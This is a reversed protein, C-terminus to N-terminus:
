QLSLSAAAYFRGIEVELKAVLDKVRFLECDDPIQQLDHAISSIKNAMVNAAAGKIKHAHEVIASLKGEAVSIKLASLEQAVDERFIDLIRKVVARDSAFRLMLGEFDFVESDHSTAQVLKPAMETKGTKEDVRNLWKELIRALDAPMVPKTLYDNMGAELCQERYGAFAHATMAVIILDKPIGTAKGSRINATAAFGDMIPMQVDMLVLDYPLRELARLAEVGNAVADARYGMKELIALAVQQNTFNDEALLIRYKKREDNLSHRTIIQADEETKGPNKQRGLVTVLCDYLDSQRVPKTLYASFGSEAFRRADGRSSMSTMMILPTKGTLPDEKIMRALEEGSLVPMHFDTIVINFPDNALASKKLISFGLIATQVTEHRVGWCSLQESVVRLNTRNDDVILVYADSISGRPLRALSNAQAQRTFPVKFWFVAGQGEQSRFGIEGAMLKVLRQSIALGLGSGGYNRSVSADLQGFATFLLEHKEQPIGIGSDQIEFLLELKEENEAVSTVNISVEGQPTFKVANGALNLLVQRLRGPDGRVMTNVQPDIRCVFELKKEHARLAIIEAVDEVTTRLDFDLIELDLKEAEIKSFDLIDNIIALLNDSSSKIIGAYRKQNDDLVTDLLINTMGTIGNMPTRIEHSMAALFNSKARNALEAADKASKLEATREEVKRELEYHMGILRDDRLQIEALMKNFADVLHGIEDEGSKDVRITYNKEVSVKEAALELDKIPKIVAKRLNLGALLAVIFSLFAIVTALGLKRAMMLWTQSIDAQIVIRGIAEKELVISAVVEVNTPLIIELLNKLVSVANKRSDIGPSYSAFLSGDAGYVKALFVEPTGKLAELTKEAGSKDSFTLAAQCNHGIADAVAALQLTKSRYTDVLDAVIFTMSIAFFAILNSVILILSIKRALNLDAFKM